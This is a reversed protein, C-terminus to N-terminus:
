GAEGFPLAVGRGTVLSFPRVERISLNNHLLGFTFKPKKDL